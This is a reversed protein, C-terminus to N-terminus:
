GTGGASSNNSMGPILKNWGAAPPRGGAKGVWVKRPTVPPDEAYEKEEPMYNYLEEADMNQLDVLRQM